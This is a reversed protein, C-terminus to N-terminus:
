RPGVPTCWRSTPARTPPSPRSATWSRAPTSWSRSRPSPRPSRRTRGRTPNATSSRRSSRRAWRRPRHPVPDVDARAVREARRHLDARNWRGSSRSPTSCSRRVHHAGQRRGADFVAKNYYLIVPQVDNMPVAYTMGDLVGNQAVSPMVRSTLDETGATIDVVQGNDVYDTLTGGTWNLILTPAEGSGVATRIKEKFADNAFSEVAFPRIPILTTGPRSRARSSPGAVAPSCGPAPRRTVPEPPPPATPPAGGPTASGCAALALSATLALAVVKSARSTLRKMADKGKSSSGSRLEAFRFLKTSHKTRPLGYMARCHERLPNDLTPPLNAYLCM